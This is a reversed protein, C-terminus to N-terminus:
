SYFSALNHTLREISFQGQKMAKIGV